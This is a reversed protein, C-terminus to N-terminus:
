FKRLLLSLVDFLQKRNDFFQGVAFLKIRFEAVMLKCAIVVTTTFTVDFRVPKQNVFNKVVNEDQKKGTDAGM